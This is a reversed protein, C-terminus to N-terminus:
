SQLDDGYNFGRRGRKSFMERTWAKVPLGTPESGDAGVDSAAALMDAPTRPASGKLDGLPGGASTHADYDDAEGEGQYAGKKPMTAPVFQTQSGAIAHQANRQKQDSEADEGDDRADEGDREDFVPDAALVSKKWNKRPGNPGDRDAYQRATSSPLPLAEVNRESSSDDQQGQGPMVGRFSGKKKKTAANTQFNWTPVALPAVPARGTAVNCVYDLM